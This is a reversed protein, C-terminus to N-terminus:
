DVLFNNVTFFQFNIVRATNFFSPPYFTFCKQGSALINFIWTLLLLRCTYLTRSKIQKKLNDDIVRDQTIAAVTNKRWHSAGTYHYKQLQERLPAVM